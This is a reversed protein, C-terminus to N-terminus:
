TAQFYKNELTQHTGPLFSSSTADAHLFHASSNLSTQRLVSNKLHRLMLLFLRSLKPRKISHRPQIESRVAVAPIAGQGSCNSIWGSLCKAWQWSSRLLFPQLTWIIAHRACWRSPTAPLLHEPYQRVRGPPFLGSPFPPNKGGEFVERNEGGGGQVALGAGGESGGVAEGSWATGEQKEANKKRPRM